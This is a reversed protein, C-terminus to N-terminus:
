EEEGEGFGPAPVSVTFVSGMGLESEVEVSGGKCWPVGHTCKRAKVGRGAERHAKEVPM